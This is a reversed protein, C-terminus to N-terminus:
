SVIGLEKISADFKWDGLRLKIESKELLSLAFDERCDLILADHVVFLPECYSHFKEVFESFM